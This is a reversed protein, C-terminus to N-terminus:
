KRSGRPELMRDDGRGEKEEKEEKGEEKERGKGERGKEERRKETREKKRRKWKSGMRASMRGECSLALKVRAEMGRNKRRRGGRREGAM